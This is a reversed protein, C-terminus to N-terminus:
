KLAAICRNVSAFLTGFDIPKPVLEAGPMTSTIREINKKDSHATIVIALVDPKIACICDIMQVGDMEPMNIDTIVIDSKYTKFSELGNQGNDACYIRVHPFAMELMSCIVESATLDDEVLLISIPKRQDM